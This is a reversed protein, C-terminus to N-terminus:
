RAPFAFTLVGPKTKQKAANNKHLKTFPKPKKVQNIGKEIKRLETLWIFKAVV